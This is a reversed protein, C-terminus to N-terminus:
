SVTILKTTRESLILSSFADQILALFFIWFLKVQIDRFSILINLVVEGSLVHPDDLRKRLNYLATRLEEGTYAERAKRLDVLFKEKIHKRTHLSFFDILM